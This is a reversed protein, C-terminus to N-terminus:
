RPLAVCSLMAPYCKELLIILVEELYFKKRGPYTSDRITLSPQKAQHVREYETDPETSLVYKGKDYPQEQVQILLTENDYCTTTSSLEASITPHSRSFLIKSTADYKYTSLYVRM